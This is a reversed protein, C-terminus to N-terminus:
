AFMKQLYGKKLEKLTELKREQLAITEDLQKFFNGIKTQEAINPVDIVFDNLHSKTITSITAGWAKEKEREFLSKIVQAFYMKNIDIKYEEFILITRDFFADYQTIATRGISKEISGQLAVVVKGAEVFRSNPEALKSIHSKTDPNLKLDFGIDAVQVFPKGNVEDYFNPNTYPQPFSGRIYKAIDELKRQEWADTFGEFRLEPFKENQKPFMKQLYGKKQEKLLNVKREQLTITEDLQKFFDGIKIQEGASPIQIQFNSVDKKTLQPQASGFSILKIQKEGSQSNLSQLIFSSQTFKDPRLILMGSNIRLFKFKNGSDSNYLALNGISGRSTLIIDNMKVKGNGMSNSKEESIYQNNVFKFGRKTVNSASLFLTHGLELFDDSSPYNKGRDGDIIQLIEGLKRQEWTDTFGEFRIEPIMKEKM